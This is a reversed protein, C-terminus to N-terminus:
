PTVQQALVRPNIRYRVTPRGGADTGAFPEPSVWAGAELLGLACGIADDTGLHKWGKRRVDRITFGDVLMGRTLRVSLDQAASHGADALLGYCRRAHSELYECWAAARLAAAASVPGPAGNSVCDVLHLILAVAPFLKDYKALHQRMIPSDEAEIRTRHLDTSWEIFIEQAEPSFRFYPFKSLDDPPSGGLAVPDLAALKEFVSHAANRVEMRPARDRWEWRRHDPYVMVQFRQLMGDNALADTAQALYGILKDPQTGGFISVCVNEIRVHGRGIRDTDFSQNGNWAELFFARDGERGEREWTSLLGVLEDRLVLVGAPNDRLIEGLKEVTTDNTMYRRLAPENPEEAGAIEAAISAPSEKGTKAAKKLQGKLAGLRAEYVMKACQFDGSEAKHQEMAQAVLRDIPQLAAGWAPSKKAAPDGVIAGWINPVVIWSDRSKPKIACRAGILSGITVVAAAAVFDVPCPMREAEDSVWEALVSPLLVPANFPEVPRLECRIPRPEPWEGRGEIADEIQEDDLAAGLWDGDAKLRQPLTNHDTRM